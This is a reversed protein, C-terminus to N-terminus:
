AGVKARAILDRANGTATEARQYGYGDGPYRISDLDYNDIRRGDIEIWSGCHGINGFGQTMEKTHRDLAKVAKVLNRPGTAWKYHTTIKGGGSSAYIGSDLKTKITITM